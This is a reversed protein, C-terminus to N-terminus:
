VKLVPPANSGYTPFKAGTAKNAPQNSMRILLLEGYTVAVHDKPILLQWGTGTKPSGNKFDAGSAGVQLQQDSARYFIAKGAKDGPIGTPLPDNSARMLCPVQLLGAVTAALLRRNDKSVVTGVQDVPMNILATNITVQATIEFVEMAKGRWGGVHMLRALETVAIGPLEVGEPTWETTVAKVDSQSWRLTSTGRLQAGAHDTPVQVRAKGPGPALQVFGTDAGPAVTGPGAAVDAGVAEGKRAGIWAALGTFFSDVNGKHPEKLGAASAKTAVKDAELKDGVAQVDEKDVEQSGVRLALAHEAMTKNGSLLL